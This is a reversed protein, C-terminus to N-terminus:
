EFYNVPLQGLGPDVETINRVPNQKIIDLLRQAENSQRATVGYRMASVVVALNRLAEAGTFESETYYLAFYGVCTRGDDPSVVKRVTTYHTIGDLHDVDSRKTGRFVFNETFPEQGPAITYGRM